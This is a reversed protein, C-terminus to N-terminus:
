RSPGVFGYEAAGELRDVNTFLIYETNGGASDIKVSFSTSNLGILTVGEVGPPNLFKGNGSTVSHFLNMVDSAQLQGGIVDRLEGTTPGIPEFYERSVDFIDLATLDDGLDTSAITDAQAIAFRAAEGEVVITDASDVRTGFRLAFGQDTISLVEVGDVGATGNAARGSVSTLFLDIVEETTLRNTAITADVQQSTYTQQGVLLYEDTDTNFLTVQSYNDALNLAYDGTNRRSFVEDIAREVESGSFEIFDQTRVNANIAITFSDSNIAVLDVGELGPASYKGSTFLDNLLSDVELADIRGGGTIDAFRGGVTRLSTNYNGGIEVADRSSNFEVRAFEQFENGIDVSTGVPGPAIAAAMVLRNEL